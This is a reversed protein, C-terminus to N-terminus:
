THTHHTHQRAFFFCFQAGNLVFVLFSGHQEFFFAATNSRIWCFFTFCFFCECERIYFCICECVCTFESMGHLTMNKRYFCYAHEKLQIKGFLHFRHSLMPRTASMFHPEIQIHDTIWNFINTVSNDLSSSLFCYFPFVRIHLCFCRIACVSSCVYKCEIALLDEVHM